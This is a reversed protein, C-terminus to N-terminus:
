IIMHGAPELKRVTATQCKGHVDKLLNLEAPLQTQTTMAALRRVGLVQSGHVLLIQQALQKLLINGATGLAQAGLILIGFV